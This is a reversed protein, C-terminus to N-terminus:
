DAEPCVSPVGTYYNGPSTVQGSSSAPLRGGTTTATKTLVRPNLERWHKNRCYESCFRKRKGPNKVRARNDAPVINQCMERACKEGGTSPAVSVTELQM